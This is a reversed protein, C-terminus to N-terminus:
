EDKSWDEDAKLNKLVWLLILLVGGLVVGCLIGFVLLAISIATMIDM